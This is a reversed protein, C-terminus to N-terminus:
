RFQLKMGLCGWVAPSHADTLFAQDLALQFGEKIAQWPKCTTFNFPGVILSSVVPGLMQGIKHGVRM